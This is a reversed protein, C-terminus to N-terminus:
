FRQILDTKNLTMFSKFQLHVYPYSVNPPLQVKKRLLCCEWSSELVFAVLSHKRKFLYLALFM